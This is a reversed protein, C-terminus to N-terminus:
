ARRGLGLRDRQNRVEEVWLEYIRDSLQHLLIPNNLVQEALKAAQDPTM